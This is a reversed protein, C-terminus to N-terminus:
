KGKGEVVVTVPLTPYSPGPRANNGGKAPAAGAVGRLVLAYTGPPTNAPVDISVKMESKDAAVTAAAPAPNNGQPKPGFPPTASFVQVADKFQADRAVKVTLEFKDGAKVKAGTEAVTLLFPATGRVALALGPGRDMRTLMPVNPPPQNAQLGTPTWTVTFPRADSSLKGATGTVTVFGEFDKADADATLVLTGRTQGAPITQQPCKVGPPLNKAELTVPEAFGDTRFVFVTFLAAGNRALTGADPMHPTVPMVALRFEPQEKAIRLVYQERVGFQIGADRASVLLRYKGDAPAAFRYRGPDDSKTYFQNPSLTDLGDDQEVIVKGKEDTLLFFADIQSGLREAFVEVTWVDGKTADFTYWHRDNKKGIRGAVDCPPALAQATEPTGNKDNDLVRPGDSLLALASDLGPAGSSPTATADIMAAMPAVPYRAALTGRRPALLKEDSEKLEFELLTDFPRGDPRYFPESGQGPLNRGFLTARTPYLPPFAAEVWPATSISLRYFHDPGGTTYAFQAVRVVYEGDAPVKFDLVADGGRYNRNAALAKGDITSVLIDPSLRSDIGTALCAVVVNQGAKAKFGVYDVDTPASIVGSVTSELAVKQAQGIDNNPEVENAEALTGVVFTRPNTLGGKGVVRVDYVGPEKPPTVKFKAVAVPQGKAKPDAKPDPKADGIREATFGKASFLLQEEGAFGTGTFTVEVPEGAKGGPPFATHLQPGSQATAFGTALLLALVAAPRSHSM